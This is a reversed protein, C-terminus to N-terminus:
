PTATPAPHARVIALKGDTAMALVAELPRAPDHVVLTEGEGWFSPAQSGLGLKAIRETGAADTFNVVYAAADAFYLRGRCPAGTAVVQCIRRADSNLAYNVIALMIAALVLLGVGTVAAGVDPRLVGLGLYVIGVGGPFTLMLLAGIAVLPRRKSRLLPVLAEAPRPPTAEMLKALDSM